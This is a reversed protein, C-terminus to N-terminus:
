GFHHRTYEQMQSGSLETTAAGTRMYFHEMGGDKVYVPARGRQCEVILVRANKFDAFRIHIYNMHQPGMKDRILNVLHRNMKDESGFRDADLGLPRGDDSVGIILRGGNSNVFAAISKLVEIEIRPDKQGTHLNVRLTSKFEIQDGEGHAIVVDPEVLNAVSHDRVARDFDILFSCRDELNAVLMTETEVYLRLTEQLEDTFRRLFGHIDYYRAPLAQGKIIAQTAGTSTLYVSMNRIDKSEAVVRLIVARLLHPVPRTSSISIYFHIRKNAFLTESDLILGSSRLSEFYSSQKSKDQADKLAETPTKVLTARIEELSAYKGRYPFHLIEDIELFLPPHFSNVEANKQLREKLIKISSHDGWARILVDWQSYLNFIMFDSIGSEQLNQIISDKVFISGTVFRVLILHLKNGFAFHVGAHWHNSWSGGEIPRVQQARRPVRRDLAPVDDMIAGTLITTEDRIAQEIGTGRLDAGTFDFGRVDQGALPWGRFDGRVFDEKPDLNGAKVLTLLKADPADWVAAISSSDQDELGPISDDISEGDQGKVPPSSASYIM